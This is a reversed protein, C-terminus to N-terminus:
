KNIKPFWMVPIGANLQDSGQFDCGNKAGPRLENFSRRNRPREGFRPKRLDDNVRPLM